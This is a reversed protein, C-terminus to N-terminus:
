RPYDAKFTKPNYDKPLGTSMLMDDPGDMVAYDEVAMDGRVSPTNHGKSVVIQSNVEIRKPIGKGALVDFLVPFAAAGMAPPYDIGIMPVQHKVALKYMANFDGGTHPPIKGAATGAAVYAELSGSGQLGSDAWVGSIQDGYKKILASMIKKGNAPSWSTYQTELVKIGPHQAFVEKAAQIRLEAPSAGALGGLMVVGGKGGLKEVLWQANMRGLVRDSSTVFSIFSSDNTTRRDVLVVPINRKMAQALIPDLAEATVPSVLLIDVGRQILDQIDAIQKTANDDAHTVFFKKIQAKNQEAAREIGHVFAVRWPNSMGSNSFGITYPGAKKFKAADFIPMTEPNWLFTRPVGKYEQALAPGAPMLCLAIFGAALTRLLKQIM